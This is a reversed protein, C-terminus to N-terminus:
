TKASTIPDSATAFFDFLSRISIDLESPNNPNLAWKYTYMLHGNYESSGLIESFPLFFLM